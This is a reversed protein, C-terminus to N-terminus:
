LVTQVDLVQFYFILDCLLANIHRKHSTHGDPRGPCSFLVDDPVACCLLAHAHAKIVQLVPQVDLVQFYFM